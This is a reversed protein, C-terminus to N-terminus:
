TEQEDIRGELEGTREELASIKRELHNVIGGIVFAGIIIWIWMHGNYRMYHHLISFDYIKTLSNRNAM